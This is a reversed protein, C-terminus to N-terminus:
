STLFNGAKWPVSLIMVTNVVAQCQEWIFGTWVKGGEKGLIWELIIEGDVSLDESRSKGEPKGVLIKHINRM